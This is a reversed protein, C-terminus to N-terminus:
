WGRPEDRLFAMAGLEGALQEYRKEPLADLPPRTQGCARGMVRMAGKLAEIRGARKVAQYLAAINEQTKRADFYKETRCIDYLKRITRPVVGALSTFMGTAGIAGASVLYEDGSILQFDPRVRWAASLTDIMFQWQHSADVLGSFNPCRNMLTLVLDHSLETAPLEDPTHFVFFPISVASAITALHEILMDPPPTWYYPTTAIVAAAGSDQAHRARDAAIRTGADSAHAIVPVRGKVQRIAFEVLRRQEADSLSVSEGVHMPLALAQAGNHLHFAIVSEFVDFDIKLDPKFPTIPTHVLGLTFVSM